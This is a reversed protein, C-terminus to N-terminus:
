KQETELFTVLNGLARIVPLESTLRDPLTQPVAPWFDEEPFNSIANTSPASQPRTVTSEHAVNRPARRPLRLRCV